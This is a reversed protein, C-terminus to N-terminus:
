DYGLATIYNTLADFWVYIVQDPDGPVPIGWGRARARSRSISFDTLGGAVFARVERHRSEPHVRLEGTDLLEALRDAYRSVRFFYNEEAIEEPAIEHDPCCGDVLEDPALFTECRVCYLGRYPRRYVDGARQCATWVRAAGEVHRPDHATRIFDDHSI